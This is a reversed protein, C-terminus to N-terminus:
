LVGNKKYYAVLMAVVQNYSKIGGPQENAKLYQAYINKIVPEFPNQYRSFFNQMTTYDKKVHLDLQKHMLKAMNSDRRHLESIAYAYMDFYVSYQFAPNESTRSSLFGAFNAENEKAFGVQHGIEHCSVFPQVFYPVTTNVQAEGSFPNYYGSIGLYNLAYSYLSPKISPHKYWLFSFQKATVLYTSVSEAFLVKKQDLVKRYGLSPSDLQNLHIVLLHIVTDLDKISYGSPKLGMESAMPLRNYNLGWLLNFLVYVWLIFILSKNLAKVLLPKRPKIKLVLKIFVILKYILYLTMLGYFADGVSFPIWGFIIRQTQAIVPYIGNSYYNEIAHPFLSFIKIVVAFIVLWKLEWKREIM